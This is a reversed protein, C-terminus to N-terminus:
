GGAREQVILWRGDSKVMVLTMPGTSKLSDSHYDQNFTVSARGSEDFKVRAGSISVQISGPKTISDRRSHEWNTRSEGGPTKFDKAYCAFYRTVDRESWAKAWSNVAGIVEEAADGSASSNEASKRAAEAQDARAAAVAVTTVPQFAAAAPRSAPKAAVQAPKGPASAKPAASTKAPPAGTKSFLERIMKLKMQATPNNKDIKLAKDYAESAMRAYVDGLNEYATAYGPHARIAMELATRAMDYQGQAAYLVALNNYPEPLEPYDETLAQFVKTAEQKKGQETLILGKLFRAQADKPNGALYANVRDLAQAQNGQRFLGTIDQLEDARVQVPATWLWAAICAALVTLMKSTAM